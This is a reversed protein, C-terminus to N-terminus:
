SIKNNMIVNILITTIVIPVMLIITYHHLPMPYNMQKYRERYKQTTPYYMHELMQRSHYQQIVYPTDVTQRSDPM